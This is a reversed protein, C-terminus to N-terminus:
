RLRGVVPMLRNTLTVSRPQYVLLNYHDMIGDGNHGELPSKGGILLGTPYGVPRVECHPSAGAYSLEEEDGSNRWHTEMMEGSCGM